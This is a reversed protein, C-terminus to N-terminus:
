GWDVARFAPLEEIMAVHGTSAAIHLATTGALTTESLAGLARAEWAHHLSHSLSDTHSTSMGLSVHAAHLPSPYSLLQPLVQSTVNYAHIM